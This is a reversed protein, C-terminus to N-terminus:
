KRKKNQKKKLILQIQKIKKRNNSKLNEKELLFNIMEDIKIEGKEENSVKKSTNSFYKKLNKKKNQNTSNNTLFTNYSTKMSTTNKNIYNNKTSNDRM